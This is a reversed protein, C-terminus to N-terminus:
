RGAALSAAAAKVLEGAVFPTAGLAIAGGLSIGPFLALYLSGGLLIVCSGALASLAVAARGRGLRGAVVGSVLAAAPFAALYGGTPGLLVWPGFAFGAFVPAGALGAGLYAAMAIFGDRPGLTIGALVAFLTQLTLPVPTFPLRVALQAGAATFAAFACIRLVRRTAESAAPIAVTMETAHIAKSRM